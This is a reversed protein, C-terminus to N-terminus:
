GRAPITNQVGGIVVDAHTWSYTDTLETIKQRMLRLAKPAATKLAAGAALSAKLTFRKYELNGVYVTLTYNM